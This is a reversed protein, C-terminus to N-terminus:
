FPVFAPEEKGTGGIKRLADMMESREEWVEGVFSGAGFSFESHGKAYADTAQWLEHLSKTYVENFRANDFTGEESAEQRAKDQIRRVVGYYLDHNQDELNRRGVTVSGSASAGVGLLGEGPTGLRLTGTSDVVTYSVNIGKRSVIESLSAAYAKAQLVEEEDRGAHTVADSIRRGIVKDQAIVANLMSTPSVQPGREYKSTEIDVEEVWTGRHIETGVHLSTLDIEERTAGARGKALTIRGDEMRAMGVRDGTFFRTKLGQAEMQENLRGVAAQDQLTWTEQAHHSLHGKYMGQYDDRTGAYGLSEAFQYTQEFRAAENLIENAQAHTIQEPGITDLTTGYAHAGRLHKDGEWGGLEEAAEFIGVGREDAHQSLITGL